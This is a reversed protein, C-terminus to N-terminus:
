LWAKNRRSLLGLVAAEVEDVSIAQMCKYHGDPCSRRLCPSCPLPTRVVVAEPGLPGTAIPDTSGFIAVVPTHVACAVHMPGTDNTIVVHCCELLAALQLVSTQGTTDIIRQPSSACMRAALPRTAKDGVIVITGGCRPVLRQCLHAFREPLWQKSRGYTAGPNLGIVPAAADVGQAALFGRAWSRADEPLALVPADPCQGAGLVHLLGLYDYMQHRRPPLSDRAARLTLLLGRLGAAFGVRAPINGLACLLASSLSNPLIIALEFAQQRLARAARVIAALKAAGTRKVYPIIASVSPVARFLDAIEERALVAIQAQPFMRRLGYVTPIAIVTDGLWTPSVVLIRQPHLRFRTVIM